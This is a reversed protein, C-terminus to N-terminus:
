KQGGKSHQASNVLFLVALLCITNIIKMEVMITEFISTANMYVPLAPITKM